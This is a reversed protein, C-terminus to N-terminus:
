FSEDFEINKSGPLKKGLNELIKNEEEDSVEEDSKYREIYNKNHKGLIKSITKEYEPNTFGDWESDEVITNKNNLFKKIEEPRDEYYDELMEIYLEEFTYDEVRDKFPIKYKKRWWRKLFYESNNLNFIAIEHYSDDNIKM